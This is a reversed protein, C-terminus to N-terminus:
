KTALHQNWAKTGWRLAHKLPQADKENASATQAAGYSQVEGSAAHARQCNHITVGQLGGIEVSLHTMISGRNPLGLRKGKRSGALTTKCRAAAGNHPADSGPKGSGISCLKQLPVVKHNIGTVVGVRAVQDIIGAHQHRPCRTQGLGQGEDRACGQPQIALQAHVV